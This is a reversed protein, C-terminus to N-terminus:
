LEPLLVLERAAEGPEVAAARLVDELDPQLQDADVVERDAVVVRV